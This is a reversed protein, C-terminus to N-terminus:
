SQFILRPLERLKFSQGALLTHVRFLRGALWLAGLLTLALLGLSLLMQWLPVTAVIMRALLTVPSTFPIVSLLIAVFGNPETQLLPFFYFPLVTPLVILGVYQSGEQTSGSIAGIAGFVAAYLLYMILFFLVMLPLLSLDLRIVSLDQLLEGYTSLNSALGYLVFISGVWISIQLIGLLALALIKGALLHTPRVTAILIEILHNQREEIVTQMLYTNTLMLGILFVMTFIYVVAFQLGQGAETVGAESEASLDFTNLTMPDSLRRLLQPEIDPTITGYIFQEALAQGEELLTLSIGPIHLVVEGSELYDEAIVYFLDIEEAELAARAAEEDPYAQLVAEFREPVTGFLGSQDVYGAMELRDLVLSELPNSSDQAAEDEARLTQFGHYGLMLVLALLPFGFTTFLYGARKANRLLEYRFVTWLKTM